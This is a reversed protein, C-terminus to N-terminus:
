RLIPRGASWWRRAELGATSLGHAVWLSLTLLLLAGAQHASAFGVPVVNLLTTVGLFIQIALMLLLAHAGIRVAPSIRKRILSLWFAPILLALVLAFLRHTFQVTALNEFFNRWLPQLAFMGDPVWRDNMTPFTNFVFGAKTGAVFGGSVILAAILGVILVAFRPGGDYAADFEAHPRALLSIAVWFMYGYLFVALALHATLRYPSVHPQDVLGSKVMFWGLLGQLGGLCFAAILRWVLPREIWGAFWFVLFPLIFVLGITRGLIRHSFEIWYISKFQSLSMGRNLQQYEPFRQYKEFERQWASESLPPVIGSIPQWEVMSLGSRTLRTVGGLVVIAFVFLCCILLWIAISRRHSRGYM